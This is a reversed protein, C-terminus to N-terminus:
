VSLAAKYAAVSEAEVIAGNFALRSGINAYAYSPVLNAYVCAVGGDSYAFSRSRYVVRSGSNGNVWDCYCTSDTGNKATPIFDINETVKFRSAYGGTGGFQYWGSVTRSQKTNMDTLTLVYDQMTVNGIWEAIDGWWNEIGWFKTNDASGNSSTTDTMGLSDKTGLTRTNTNSGAGCQAQSNMRGYWAYFLICMMWQWEWTVCSYGTGRASAYGNGTAQTFNATGIVGSRSYGKGDSVYMKKAGLLNTDGEWKKWTLDPEGAFAFSFSYEDYAGDADATGIPTVKWWFVPLKLWQDGESGDLAASTGDSYKTGDLDQLQCILQNGTETQTGLYLHSANRIAKIVNGQVNGTIMAHEDSETQNITITDRPIYTYNMAVTRAPNAATFTRPAPTIYDYVREAEVVYEQGRSITATVTGTGQAVVSGAVKITLTATSGVDGVDSTAGVTVIEGLKNIEDIVFDYVAKTSPYHTTSASSDISSDRNSTSQLYDDSTSWVGTSKNLTIRYYRAGVFRFFIFSTSSSQSLQYYVIDGSEIARCMVARGSDVASQIESISTVNYEAVFVNDTSRWYTNVTLSQNSNSESALQVVIDSSTFNNWSVLSTKSSLISKNNEDTTDILYLKNTGVTDSLVIKQNPKLTYKITNTYVTTSVDLVEIENFVPSETSILTDEYKAFDINGSGYISQNNLTKVNSTDLISCDVTSSDRSKRHKLDADGSQITTNMNGNGVLVGTADNEFKIGNRNGAVQLEHYDLNLDGTMSSGARSVKSDLDSQKIDLIQAWGNNLVKYKNDEVTNSLTRISKYTGLFLTQKIVANTTPTETNTCTSFCMATTALGNIYATYIFIQPTDLELYGVTRMLDEYHGSSHEGNTLNVIEPHISVDGSGILSNENVTKIQSKLAYNNLETQLDQAFQQLASTLAQTTIYNSLDISTDGIKTFSNNAYVYEEYRDKGSGAPGILYLVNSEGSQPLETYIEYHFHQINGILADVEAQTYTNQKTYYNLLDNVSKTIFESVDPFPIDGSGLLSTGNITKTNGEDFIVHYFDQNNERHKHRITDGSGTELIMRMNANGVYVGQNNGSGTFEIARRDNSVLLAKGGLNLSGTMTGGSRQLAGNAKSRIDSLDSIADQKDDWTTKEASTVFKNSSSSDDVLDADLKNTENIELQLTGLGITSYGSETVYFSLINADGDFFGVSGFFIAVINDNTITASIPMFIDGEHKAIIIKGDNYATVIDSFSITTDGYTIFFVSNIDINGGAGLLSQGNITKTNHSDLMVYYNDGEKHRITDNVGTELIMRMNGNGVYVGEDAGSGRFQIGPREGNINRVLLANGNLDISGTMTGGSLPLKADWEAKEETSVFKHTTSSDDVLDASLKNSSDIIPQAYDTVAKTTPYKTNDINGTITSVKEDTRQWKYTIVNGWTTSTLDFFNFNNLYGFGVFRISTESLWQEPQYYVDSKKAIVLKGEEIANFVDQPNTVGYEAIFVEHTDINGSGLVSNGNITKINTGSVLNEQLQIVGNDVWIPGRKCAIEAVVNDELRAYFRCETIYDDSVRKVFCNLVYTPSYKQENYTIDHKLIVIKGANVANIINDLTDGWTTPYINGKTAVNNTDLIDYFDGGKKHILDLNPDAELFLRMNPNGVYIGERVGEGTFRIGNRIEDGSKRVLLANGNLDIDGTMQGGSKPLANNAKSRINSLDSIYDQLQYFSSDWVSSSNVWIETATLGPWGGVGTRVNAFSCFTSNSNVLTYLMNSSEQKIFVIKGNNINEIIDDYTTVGYEGIFVNQADIPINEMPILGLLGEADAHSAYFATSADNAFSSDQAKGVKLGGNILAQTYLNLGEPDLFNKAM